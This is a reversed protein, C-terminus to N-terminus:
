HLAAPTLGTWRDYRLFGRRRRARDARGPSDTITDVTETTLVHRFDIWCFPDEPTRENGCDGQVYRQRDPPRAHGDACLAQPSGHRRALAAEYDEILMEAGVDPTGDDDADVAVLDFDAFTIYSYWIDTKANAIAGSWGEGPGLGKGPRLGAPDEQWTLACGAGKACDVAPLNVDRVGSTLREPTTWVVHSAEVFDATKPDDGPLLKGRATWICSYPVEGVEPFGQETYNVSGQTGAVGFLDYLYM